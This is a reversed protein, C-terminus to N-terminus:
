DELLEIIDSCNIRNNPNKQTTGKIIKSLIELNCSEHILEPNISTFEYNTIKSLLLNKDSVNFLYNFTIIMYITCGLAWIDSSFSYKFSEIIEPSCYNPTGVWIENDNPLDKIQIAFGFDGLIIDNNHNLFINEPKIDRHIYNKEHIYKVVNSLQLIIKKCFEYNFKEKQNIYIDIYDFLDKNVAYEQYIHFTKSDYCVIYKYLKTINPHVLDLLSNVERAIREKQIDSLESYLICKDIMTNCGNSVLLISTCNRTFIRNIIKYKKVLNVTTSVEPVKKLMKIFIENAM